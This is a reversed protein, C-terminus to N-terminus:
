AAPVEARALPDAYLVYALWTSNAPDKKRIAERADVFSEGFTKGDKLLAEYFAKAFLLALKDNVEWAAGILAAVRAKVLCSAWGGLGTLGYGGRAGECANIFVLPRPREDGFRVIVDSPRLDGDVLTITSNGPLSADFAGHTAFHLISFNGNELLDIVQRRSDYPEGASVGKRVKDIKALYKLEGTVADLDDASAIVPRLTTVTLKAAPSAGRLWRAVVFTECLHPEDERQNAANFRYPKVMEWPIWPEDSTIQVTKAKDRITWYADRLQQSFAEEWLWIGLKAIRSPGDEGGGEDALTSLEEYFAQLKVAPAETLTVEGVRTHHFNLDEIESHLTFWLKRPNNPDTEITLDIDPPLAGEPAFELEAVGTRVPVGRGSPRGVVSTERQATGIRRGAQYFDVRIGQAGRSLPTLTFRVESDADRLVKFKQTNGPGISFAPARIVAELEIEPEGTDEIAIADQDDASPKLRLSVTLSNEQNVVVESPYDLEPYRVLAPADPKDKPPRPGGNLPREKRTSRKKSRSPAAKPSEARTTGPPPPAMPGAADGGNAARTPVQVVVRCVEEVQDWSPPLSTIVELLGPKGRGGVRPKTLSDISVDGQLLDGVGPLKEMSGLFRLFLGRVEDEDPEDQISLVLDDYARDISSRQEDFHGFSSRAGLEVIIATASSAIDGQPGPFSTM